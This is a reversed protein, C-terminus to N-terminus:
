PRREAWNRLYEPTNLPNKAQEIEEQQAALATAVLVFGIVFLTWIVEQSAEHRIGVIGCGLLFMAFSFYAFKEMKNPNKPDHTLGIGAIGVAFLLVVLWFLIDLIM